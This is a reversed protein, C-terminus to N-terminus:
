QVSIVTNLLSHQTLINQKLPMYKHLYRKDFRMITSRMLILEKARPKKIATFCTHVATTDFTIIALKPWLLQAALQM